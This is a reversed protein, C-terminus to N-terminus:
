EGKKLAQILKKKAKRDAVMLTQGEDVAELIEVYKKQDGSLNKIIEVFKEDKKTLKKRNLFGKINGEPIRTKLFLFLIFVFCAACGFLTQKEEFLKIALFFCFYALGDVGLDINDATSDSANQIFTTIKEGRSVKESNNSQEGRTDKEKNDM